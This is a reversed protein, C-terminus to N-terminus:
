QRQEKEQKKVWPPRLSTYGTKISAKAWREEIVGSKALAKLLRQYGRWTMEADVYLHFHGITSSAARQAPVDIAFGTAYPGDNNFFGDISTAFDAIGARDFAKAVRKYARWTMEMDLYLIQRGDRNPEDLLVTPRDIDLIPAHGGTTLASSILIAHAPNDTIDKGEAQWGPGYDDDVRYTIRKLMKHPLTSPVTYDPEQPAVPTRAAARKESRLLSRKLSM